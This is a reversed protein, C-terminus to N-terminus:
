QRRSAPPSGGANFALLPVLMEARSVGGHRGLLHNIKPAWWWYAGDQPVVTWDGMREVALPHADGPGFLGAQLLRATPYVRFMGPWTDEIYQRAREERGPRLFLFPLRNEGSPRMVLCDLLRPHHNLDYRPEFPTSIHGHDATVLVLTGALAPDRLMEILLALQRGVQLVELLVREDQPGFRHALDDVESIYAYSYTRGPAARLNAHLTVWLDNLTRYGTNSVEALLMTSLSSHAITHAHYAFAQVDHAALHPGLTPVRLFTEPLLGARRMSGPDGPLSVPTHTIANMMVGFEKLWMEYGTIAHAAPPQGTWLSTLASATTSPVISTLAAPTSEDLLAAWPDPLGRARAAARLDELLQIGLGDVVILVVHRYTGGALLPDLVVSDLAPLGFEPVGLLRCIGGPLNALSRGAYHPYLAGPGLDPGDLRHAILHEIQSALTLFM